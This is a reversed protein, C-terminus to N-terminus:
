MVPGSGTGVLKVPVTEDAIDGNAAAATPSTAKMATVEAATEDNAALPAPLSVIAPV